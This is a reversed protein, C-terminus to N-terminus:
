LTVPDTAQLCPRTPDTPCIAFDLNTNPNQVMNFYIDGQIDPTALTYAMYANNQDVVLGPYAGMWLGYPPPTVPSPRRSYQDQHQSYATAEMPAPLWIFIWALDNPDNRRDYWVVDIICETQCGDM